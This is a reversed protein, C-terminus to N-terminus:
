LNEVLTDIQQKEDRAKRARRALNRMYGGEILRVSAALKLQASRSSSRAQRAEKEDDRADAELYDAVWELTQPDLWDPLRAVTM